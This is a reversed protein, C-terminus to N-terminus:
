NALTGLAMGEDVKSSYERQEYSGRVFRLFYPRSKRSKVSKPRGEMDEGFQWTGIKQWYIRRQTM